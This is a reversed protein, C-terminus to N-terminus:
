DLSPVELAKGGKVKTLYVTSLGQHNTKNFRVKVGGLDKDMSELSNHFAQRTLNKGAAKLAEVLVRANVYGEFGSYNTPQKAAAMAARYQSAIPLTSDDPHPVVQTIYCGDGADGLEKVFSATGVFSVTLFVAKLGKAKAKKVFLALPKYTGVMVIADPQTKAIAELAEDVKETNRQFTGSGIPKMGRKDLARVVGGQVAKGFGDDQLFIAIKKLAKKDVLNAVMLEAEDWYSARVNYMNKVLPNRFVEAGTFLGLLPVDHEKLIPLIAQNTPTGVHNFLAFVKDKDILKRTKEITQAPEYGDDELIWKIKRGSIGGEANIQDIYTKAGANLELGLNAAPGTTVNATGISVEGGTVGNQAFASLSALLVFTLPVLPTKM